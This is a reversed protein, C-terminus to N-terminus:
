GRLANRLQQRYGKAHAGGGKERSEGSGYKDYSQSTEKNEYISLQSVGLM